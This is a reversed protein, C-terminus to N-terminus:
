VILVDPHRQVGHVSRRLRDGHVVGQQPERRVPCQTRLWDFYPYPDDVLEDGRFFDIADYDITEDTM